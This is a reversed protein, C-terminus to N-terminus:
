LGGGSTVTERAEYYTQRQWHCQMGTKYELTSWKQTKRERGAQKLPSEIKTPYTYSVPWSFFISLYDLMVLERHM